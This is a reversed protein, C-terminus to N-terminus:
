RIRTEIGAGTALRLTKLAKSAQSKVTGISCGLTAAVEAETLDDLFRLALVARQRPPLRLLLARADLSDEVSHSIGTDGTRALDQVAGAAIERPRRRRWSLAENVIARRVYADPDGRGVVRNWRPWVKAMATQVVDEASSEDGTVMWALRLLARQRLVLYDRLGVPENM